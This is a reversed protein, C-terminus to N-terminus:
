TDDPAGKWYRAHLESETGSITAWKDFDGSVDVGDGITKLSGDMVIFDNSVVLGPRFRSYYYGTGRWRPVGNKYFFDYRTGQM